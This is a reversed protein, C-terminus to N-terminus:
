QLWNLCNWATPKLYYPVQPKIPSKKKEKKEEKTFLVVLKPTVRLGLM